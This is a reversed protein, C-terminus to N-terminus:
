EPGDCSYWEWLIGKDSEPTFNADSPMNDSYTRFWSEDPDRLADARTDYDWGETAAQRQAGVLTAAHCRNCNAEFVPLADDWTVTSGDPCDGLEAPFQGPPCGPLTSLGFALLAVTLLTRM